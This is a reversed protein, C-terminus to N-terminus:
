AATKRYAHDVVGVANAEQSQSGAGLPRAAGQPDNVEHLIQDSERRLRKAFGARFEMVLRLM